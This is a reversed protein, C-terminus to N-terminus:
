YLGKCVCVSDTAQCLGYHYREKLTSSKYQLILYSAKVYSSLDSSYTNICMGLMDYYGGIASGIGGILSDDEEEEDEVADPDYNSVVDLSHISVM